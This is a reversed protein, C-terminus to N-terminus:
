QIKCRVCSLCHRCLGAQKNCGAAISPGHAVSKTSCGATGLLCEACLHVLLCPRLFVSWRARDKSTHGCTEFLRFKMDVWSLWAVAQPCVYMFCSLGSAQTSCMFAAIKHITIKRNLIYMNSGRVVSEDVLVVLLRRKSLSALCQVGGHVIERCHPGGRAGNVGAQENACL